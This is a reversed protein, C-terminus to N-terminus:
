PQPVKGGDAEGEGCHYGDQFLGPVSGGLVEMTVEGEAPLAAGTPVPSDRVARPRVGCPVVGEASEVWRSPTVEGVVWEM